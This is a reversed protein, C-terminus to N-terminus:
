FNEVPAKNEWFNFKWNVQLVQHVNMLILSLIFVVHNRLREM